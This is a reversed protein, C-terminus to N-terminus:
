SLRIALCGAVQLGKDAGQLRAAAHSIDSPEPLSHRLEQSAFPWLAYPLHGARGYFLRWRRKEWIKPCLNPGLIVGYIPDVRCLIRYIYSDVQFEITMAIVLLFWSVWNQPVWM